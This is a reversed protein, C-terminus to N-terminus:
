RDDLPPSLRDMQVSLNGYCMVILLVFANTHAAENGEEVLEGSDRQAPVPVRNM